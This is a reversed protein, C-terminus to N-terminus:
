MGAFLSRFGGNDRFENQWTLPLYASISRTIRDEVCSSKVLDNPDFRPASLSIAISEENTLEEDEEKM